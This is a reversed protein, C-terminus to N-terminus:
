LAQRSRSGSALGLMAAPWARGRPAAAALEVRGKTLLRPRRGELLWGAIAMTYAAVATSRSSGRIVLWHAKLLRALPLRLSQMVLVM